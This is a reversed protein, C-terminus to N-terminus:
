PNSPKMGELSRTLDEPRYTPPLCTTGICVYAAPHSPIPYGLSGIRDRSEETDLPVVIKWPAKFRHAASILAPWQPDARRGIVVIQHPPNLFQELALGFPAAHHKYSRYINALYDLVAQSRRHYDRNGTLHFLRILGIAAAANENLPKMRVKLVGERDPNEPLDWYGGTKEDWLHRNIIGVLEEAHDQYRREGTAEFADLLAGIAHVQDSLYGPLSPREDLYHVMGLEFDRCRGLLVNLLQLASAQYATEGLERGALLLASVAVANHDTYLTRDRRPSEIGVRDEESLAYYEEDASQSGCFWAEGEVSLTTYLYDLIGYVTYRYSADGTLRHARLYLMLMRANVELLKEYHPRDWDGRTAYRFFGGDVSDYLASDRMNDLTVKAMELCKLDGTRYHRHMLLDIAWPQPFKPPGGFGGHEPDYARSISGTVTELATPLSDAAQAAQSVREQVPFPSPRPSGSEREKQIQALLELLRGTPLYTDGVMVRGEGDLVAVTPWGGMNYRSNIDPRRDSDVRVPIFDRNLRRIVEPHDFSEEDMVHCWHCWVASISLFIPRNQARSEEFVETSWSRWHIQDSIMM